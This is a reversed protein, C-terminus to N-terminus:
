GFHSMIKGTEEIWYDMGMEKFLTEAAKLHIFAIKEQNEQIYLEGLFLRGIAIDPSTELETFEFSLSTSQRSYKLFAFSLPPV